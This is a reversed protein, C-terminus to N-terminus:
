AYVGFRRLQGAEVRRLRESRPSLLYTGGNRHLIPIRRRATIFHERMEASRLAYSEFEEDFLAFIWDYTRIFQERYAATVQELHSIVWCTSEFAWDYALGLFRDDASVYPFFPFQRCSFLRNERECAHPGLCALLLMGSPTAATLQSRSTENGDGCEDGRWVHWLESVPNLMRWESTYAAPVAQCIDCCFPKGSPNHPACMRGCDVRTVPRNFGAYLTRIDENDLDDPSRLIRNLV